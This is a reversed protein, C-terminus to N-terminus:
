ESALNLCSERIEHNNELLECLHLPSCPTLECKQASFRGGKTPSVPEEAQTSWEKGGWEQLWGLPTIKGASISVQSDEERKGCSICTCSPSSSDSAPASLSSVGQVCLCGRPGEPSPHPVPARGAALVRGLAQSPARPQLLPELAQCSSCSPLFCRPFEQQPPVAFLLSPSHSPHTVSHHHTLLFGLSSSPFSSSLFSLSALIGRFLEIDGIKFYPLGPDFIISLVVLSHWFFCPAPPSGCERASGLATAPPLLGM